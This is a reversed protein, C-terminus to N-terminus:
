EICLLLGIQLAVYLCTTAKYAYMSSGISIIVPVPIAPEHTAVKITVGLLLFSYQMHYVFVGSHGAVYRSGPFSFILPIIIFVKVTVEVDKYGNIFLAIRTTGITSIVWHCPIVIKIASTGPVGFQPM